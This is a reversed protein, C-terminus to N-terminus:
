ITDELVEVASMIRTQLTSHFSSVPVLGLFDDQLAMVPHTHFQDRFSICNWPRIPAIEKASRKEKGAYIMESTLADPKLPLPPAPKGDPNFHTRILGGISFNDLIPASQTAKTYDNM